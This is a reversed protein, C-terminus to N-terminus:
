SAKACVQPRAAPADLVQRMKDALAQPTFPKEIFLIGPSFVDRHLVADESYGSMYIVRLEPRQELMAEALERGGMRPMVVDTLLVDIREKRAATLALADTGNTAELVTYGRQKLVKVVMRRVADEDEVVLATETGRDESHPATSASGVEDAKGGPICPLLIEFSTGRGPESEVHVDGASQRVIGYVTALGLGTGGNGRRTTFFPEFIRERTAEDMGVGTDEVRLVVYPGPALLQQRGEVTPRIHTTCTRLTIRGGNPMADRANLVLNLIVQELQTPDIRVPGVNEGLVHQLEVDERIMRRLMRSVDQVAVNLDVLRPHLVQKSSYALLQRTLSAAREASRRVEALEEQGDHDSGLRESLLTAHGNIATLLNNFDHAIGGALRGIAEMKQAQQHEESHRLEEEMEIRDVIAQQLNLAIIDSDSRPTITVGLDGRALRDAAAAISEVYECIARFPRAIPALEVRSGFDLGRRLDGNAIHSAASAIIALSARVQREISRALWSLVAVSIILVAVIALTARRSLADIKAYADAIRMRDRETRAALDERLQGYSSRVATLRAILSDTPTGAILAASASRALGHYAGFRDSLDTFESISGVPNRAAHAIATQLAHELSDAMDLGSPERAVVADQLARQYNELLGELDRSTELAETYGSRLLALQQRSRMGAAVTVWLSLALAVAALIPLLAVKREFRISRSM